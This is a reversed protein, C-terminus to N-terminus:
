MIALAAMGAYEKLAKTVGSLASSSPIWLLLSNATEVIEVDTPAPIPKNDYRPWVKEFAKMARGIHQASTVLLVRRAGLRDLIVRANIANERTNRSQADLRIATRPVGLTTLM